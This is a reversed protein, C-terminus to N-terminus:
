PGPIPETLISPPASLTQPVAGTSNKPADEESVAKIFLNIKKWIQPSVLVFLDVFQESRYRPKAWLPQMMEMQAALMWVTEPVYALDQRRPNERMAADYVAKDTVVIKPPNGVLHFEIKNFGAAEDGTVYLRILRAGEIEAQISELPDAPWFTLKGKWGSRECFFEESKPERTPTSRLSQTDLTYETADEQM